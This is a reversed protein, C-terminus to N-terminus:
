ASHTSLGLDVGVEIKPELAANLARQLLVRAAGPTFRQAAERSQASIQSWIAEDTYVQLIGEVFAAADNAIIANVGNELGIGEAGM